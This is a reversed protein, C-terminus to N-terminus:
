CKDLEKQLLTLRNIWGKLFKKQTSDKEVIRQYKDRRYFIIDDIVEPILGAKEDAKLANLTIRGIVGDAEVGLARQLYKTARGVGMNVATDFVVLDLGPPLIDGGVPLWYRNFYIDRIELATIDRVPRPPLGCDARYDDYTEQTVGCNTAGGHDDPDDGYGGEVNPSLVFNLCAEFRNM